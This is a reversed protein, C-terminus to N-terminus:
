TDPAEDFKQKYSAFEAQQAEPSLGMMREIAKQHAEDGKQVMEMVHAKCNNGVEEFTEGSVEVDCASPGGLDSCKLTKM